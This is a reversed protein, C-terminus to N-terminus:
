ILNRQARPESTQDLYSIIALQGDGLALHLGSVDDMIRRQDQSLLNHM